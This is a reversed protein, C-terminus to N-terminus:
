DVHVHGCPRLGQNASAQDTINNDTISVNEISLDQGTYWLKAAMLRVGSANNASVVWNALSGQLSYEIMDVAFGWGEGTHNAVTIGHLGGYIHCQRLRWV